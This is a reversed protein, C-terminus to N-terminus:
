IRLAGALLRGHAAADLREYTGASLVWLDGPVHAPDFGEDRLATKQHKFTSTTHLAPVARLFVPVAYSPLEARLAAACAVPDFGPGVVLAAMGARGPHGPVTVGYVVAERVGPVRLLAREVELTSVNEGKWRFTDGLRDVFALHGFGVDRLLDGSVFWVDGKKFADRILKGESAEPDSYGEYPYRATVEAVLLGPAGRPVETLRGKPDRKPEGTEPDYQVLAWKAPCLGVTEELNLLNIFSINMESAAYLEFVQEIGFREKFAGWIAPRLGNGLARLPGHARDYPSPPAALMYQPVEGIYVFANAALRVCDEMFHSASFKTRTLFAAGHMVASGWGITLANNHYLPLPAYIGEGPKLDLCAGGFVRAAKEWRLHSLRSAKPHGTTGSTFVLYATDGLRIGRAPWPSTTPEGRELDALSTAAETDAAGVVVVLAGEAGPLEARIETFAPLCEEGILFARAKAVELSHLLVTRRQNTNILAARAGCKLVAVLALLFEVRNEIMVAVTDGPRVGRRLLGHAAASTREAFARFTIAGDHTRVADHDPWREAARDVYWPISRPTAESALLLAAGAKALPIARPWLGLTGRVVDRARIL